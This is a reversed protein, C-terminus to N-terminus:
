PNEMLELSFSSFFLLSTRPRSLDRIDCIWKSWAHRKHKGTGCECKKECFVSNHLTFSDFNMWGEHPVWEAKLKRILDKQARRFVRGSVDDWNRSSGPRVMCDVRLNTIKMCSLFSQNGAKARERQKIETEKESHYIVKLVAMREARERLRSGVDTKLWTRCVKWLRRMKRVKRQWGSRQVEKRLKREM